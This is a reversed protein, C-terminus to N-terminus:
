VSRQKIQSNQRFTAFMNRMREDLPLSRAYRSTSMTYIMEKSQESHPNFARNQKLDAKLAERNPHTEFQHILKQVAERAPTIKSKFPRIPLGQIRFDIEGRCSENYTGGGCTERHKISHDSPTRADSSATDQRGYHLNPKRVIRQPVTHCQFTKSCVEEESKKIVGGKRHVGFTFHQLPHDHKIM